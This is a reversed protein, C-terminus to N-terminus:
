KSVKDIPKLNAIRLRRHLQRFNIAVYDHIMQTHFQENEEHSSLEDGIPVVYSM